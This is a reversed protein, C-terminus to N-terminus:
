YYPASSNWRRKFLNFDGLDVIGDSNMDTNSDGSNWNSKFRNFDGLDVLNDNNFDADSINGWGDGDADEQGTNPTLYANDSTDPIGDSDSDPASGPYYITLRPTVGPLWYDKASGASGACGGSNNGSPNWMVALARGWDGALIGTASDDQCPDPAFYKYEATDSKNGDNIPTTRTGLAIDNVVGAKILAAYGNESPGGTGFADGGGVHFNGEADEGLSTVSLLNRAVIKTNDEYLLSSGTAPDWESPARVKLEGTRNPSGTAYGLGTILNGNSDVDVDSSAGPINMVLPVGVHASPDSAETDVSGVGSKFVCDPNNEYPPECGTPWKGGNVVFYRNDDWDGEYYGIKTFQKVSSEGTLLPPNQISLVTTPVILLPKNYGLGIAIKSGDPSVHIFSPDMVDPVTAVVDWQSSGYTRQLYISKNNAAIIRGEAEFRGDIMDTTGDPFYDVAVFWGAAITPLNVVATRGAVTKYDGFDDARAGGPLLLFCLIMAGGALLKRRIDSKM